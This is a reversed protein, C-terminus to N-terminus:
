AFASHHRARSHHRCRRLGRSERGDSPAVAQLSSGPRTPHSTFLQKLHGACRPCDGPATPTIVTSPSNPNAIISATLHKRRIKPQSLSASRHGPTRLTSYIPRANLSRRRPPFDCTIESGPSLPQANDLSRWGPLRWPSREHGARRLRFLGGHRSKWAPLATAPWRAVAGAVRTASGGAGVGGLRCGDPWSVFGVPRPQPDEDAAEARSGLHNRPAALIGVAPVGLTSVGQRLAGGRVPKVSPEEVSLHVDDHDLPVEPVAVVLCSVLKLGAALTTLRERVMTASPRRLAGL